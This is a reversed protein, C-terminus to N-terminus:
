HGYPGVVGRPPQASSKDQGEKFGKMAWFVASPIGWVPLFGILFAILLGAWDSAPDGLSELRILKFLRDLWSGGIAIVLCCHVIGVVVALVLALRKLGKEWNV